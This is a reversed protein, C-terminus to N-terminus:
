GGDPFLGRTRFAVETRNKVKLKRIINRVHVKVTSESMNLEMAIIKNPQGTRMARTVELERPSFLDRLEQDSPALSNSHPAAGLLNAPVYVGGARILKLAHLTIELSAGSSLYGRAGLRIAESAQTADNNSTFIAFNVKPAIERVANVHPLIAASLSKETEVNCCFLILSTSEPDGERAWTEVDAYAEFPTDPDIAALSISVCDRLLMRTDILVTIGIAGGDRGAVAQEGPTDSRSSSSPADHPAM